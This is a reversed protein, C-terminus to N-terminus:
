ACGPSGVASPSVAAEARRCRSPMPRVPASWSAPSISPGNASRSRRLASCPPGVFPRTSPPMFQHPAFSRFPVAFIVARWPDIRESLQPSLCRTFAVTSLVHLRDRDRDVLVGLLRQAVAVVKEVLRVADTLKTALSPRHCFVIVAVLVFVDLGITDTDAWVNQVNSRTYQDGIPSRASPTPNSGV